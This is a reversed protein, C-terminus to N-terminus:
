KWADSGTISDMSFKFDIVHAAIVNTLDLQIFASGTIENPPDIQAGLNLGLGIDDPSDHRGYLKADPTTGSGTFGYATITVGGTNSTFVHSFGGFDADPGSLDWTITAAPAAASFALIFLAPIGIRKNM